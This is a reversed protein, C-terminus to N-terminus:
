SMPKNLSSVNLCISSSSPNKHPGESDSQCLFSNSSLSALFKMQLRLVLSSVFVSSPDFARGAPNEIATDHAHKFDSILEIAALGLRHDSRLTANRAGTPGVCFYKATQSSFLVAIDISALHCLKEHLFEDTTLISVGDSAHRDVHCRPIQTPKSSRASHMRHVRQLEAQM